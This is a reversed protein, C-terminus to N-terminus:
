WVSRRRSKKKPKQKPKSEPVPLNLSWYLRKVMDESIGPWFLRIFDIGFKEGM